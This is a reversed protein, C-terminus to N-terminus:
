VRGIQNEDWSGEDETEVWTSASAESRVGGTRTEDEDGEYRTRETAKGNGNCGNFCGPTNAAM